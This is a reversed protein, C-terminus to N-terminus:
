RKVESDSRKSKRPTPEYIKIIKNMILTNFAIKFPIPLSDFSDEFGKILKETEDMDNTDVLSFGMNLVVDIMAKTLEYKTVNVMTNATLLAKETKSIKKLSEVEDPLIKIFESIADIDIYYNNGNIPIIHEEM